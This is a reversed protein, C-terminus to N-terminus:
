FYGQLYASVVRRLAEGGYPRGFPTEGGADEYYSFLEGSFPSFPLFLKIGTEVDFLDDVRWKWGLKAMVLFVNDMQRTLSPAFLGEPNEVWRHMFESRSFVYLSGLLGSDTRFRGGVTFTNKPTSDSACCNSRDYVERHAWSAMLSIQRSPNYRMVLESGFIDFDGFDNTVRIFSEDLDPLGQLDAVIEASLGTGNRFQSFFIDLAVSLTGDLYLGLYGAEFSILEENEIDPNGISKSMFEQFNEQGDGTIPSSEPFAVMPHLGTEIFQSKRFARSLGMRLYQGKVPKFVAVLRPSLFAPTVTNYDFRLSGSLTVWESPQYESHVFAGARGEWHSKGAKHYDLSSRDAYTEGDLLQDSGIWSVRGGGGVMLLLKKTLEPLTWQIEGDVTHTNMKMPIFEALTLGGFELPAELSADAPTNLWYLRGRLDKSEYALRLARIYITMDVLGVSTNLTGAGRSMGFDILFRRSESWEYEAMARLKWTETGEQSPQFFSNQMDTAAYLALGWGGIRTSARGGAQLMGVEGGAIRVSASTKEPVLRTTVSVVGALASAGYMSSAPGRLIEIREIDELSVIEAQWPAMGLIENICDRGDILLQFYSNSANWFLRSSVSYYSPSVMVVDIGPVMRLLEPLTTAGSAEVDERTLVTVASPSMGIEQRHRSALEIMGADELFAFEDILEMEEDGAVAMAVQEGDQLGGAFAWFPMMVAMVIGANLALRM